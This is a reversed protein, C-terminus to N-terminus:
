NSYSDSIEPNDRKGFMEIQGIEEQKITNETNQVGKASIIKKKPGIDTFRCLGLDSAILFVASEGYRQTLEIRITNKYEDKKLRRYLNDFIMITDAAEAIGGTGKLHAISPTEREAVNSLQCLLIISVNLQRSVDALRNSIETLEQVPNKIDFVVRQLFDIIIVKAGLHAYRKVRGLLESLGLGSTCEILLQNSHFKIKELEKRKEPSLSKYEGSRLATDELGLMSAKLMRYLPYQPVELSLFATKVDQHLLEKITHIVFRTKGAKKLAGIVYFRGREIGNTYLDMVKLGWSYGDITQNTEKQLNQMLQNDLATFEVFKSESEFDIGAIAALLNNKEDKFESLYKAEELKKLGERTNILLKRKFTRAKLERIDEALRVKSIDQTSLSAIENKYEKAAEFLGVIDASRENKIIIDKIARILKISVPNQFDEETFAALADIQDERSDLQLINAIIRKELENQM